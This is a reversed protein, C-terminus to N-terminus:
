PLTGGPFRSTRHEAFGGGARVLFRAALGEREALRAGEDPGLVMLATALADAEMASGAVVTVAAVDNAVPRGTRPDVVHSYRTGDEEFFAHADGSTAVAADELELVCPPALEAARPREVAVRWPGGDPNTGGARLEGGVDVLFGDAGVGDVLAAVRDVAYGKAVASLDIRLGPARRRIAPPAARTELAGSGVRALAADIAATAPRRREGGPGFGWLDVLPGVTVDFAGGTERSIRLSRDLVVNLDSSV